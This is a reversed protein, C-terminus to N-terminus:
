RIEAKRAGTVVAQVQEGSDPNRLVIQEGLQGKHLAIMPITIKLPGKNISLMVTDDQRILAAPRLDSTRIPQGPAITRIAEMQSIGANEFLADSPLPGYFPMLAANSSSVNQGRVIIEKSVMIVNKIWIDDRSLIAGARLNKAAASRKLIRAPFRQAPSTSSLPKRINSINELDIFEGSLLDKDLQFVVITETLFQKLVLDGALVPKSLSMDKLANPDTIAGRISGKLQIPKVDNPSLLQGAPMNTKFAYGATNKILKVGLFVQWNTDPCRVRISEQSSAYSFKIDFPSDCDPIILRRDTAAIEVQDGALKTQEAVWAKAQKILAQKNASLEPINQAATLSSGLFLVFFFISKYM